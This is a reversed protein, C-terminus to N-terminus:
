SPLDGMEFYNKTKFHKFSSFIICYKPMDMLGCASELEELWALKNVNIHVNSIEIMRWHM